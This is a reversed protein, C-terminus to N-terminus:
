EQKFALGGLVLIWATHMACSCQSEPAGNVNYVYLLTYSCAAAKGHLGQDPPSAVCTGLAM